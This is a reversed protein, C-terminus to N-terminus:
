GTCENNTCVSQNKRLVKIFGCISVVELCMRLDSVITPLQCGRLFSSFHKKNGRLLKEKELYKFEKRSKKITYFCPRILFIQNIEFKIVDCGPFCVIAIFM